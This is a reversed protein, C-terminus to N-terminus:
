TWGNRGVATPLCPGPPWVAVLPGFCPSPTCTAPHHHPRPLFPITRLSARRDLLSLHFLLAHLPPPPGRPRTASGTTPPHFPFSHMHPPHATRTPHTHAQRFVCVLRGLINRPPPPRRNRPRRGAASKSVARVGGRPQVLFFHQAEECMARCWWMVSLAWANGWSLPALMVM